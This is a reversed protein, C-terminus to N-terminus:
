AESQGTTPSDDSDRPYQPQLLKDFDLSRNLPVYEGLSPHPKGKKASLSQLTVMAKALRRVLDTPEAADKSLLALDKEDEVGSLLCLGAM